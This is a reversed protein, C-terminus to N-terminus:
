HTSKIITQSNYNMDSYRCVVTEEHIRTAKGPTTAQLLVSHKVEVNDECNVIWLSLHRWLEQELTPCVVTSEAATWGLLQGTICASMMGGSSPILQIRTSTNINFFFIYLFDLERYTFTYWIARQKRHPTGCEVRLQTALTQIDGSSYVTARTNVM